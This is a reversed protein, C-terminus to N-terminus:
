YISFLDLVVQVVGFNFMTNKDICGYGLYKKTVYGESKINHVGSTFYFDNGKCLYRITM